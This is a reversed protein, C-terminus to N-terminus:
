ARLFPNQQKQQRWRLWWQKVLCVIKRNKQSRQDWRQWDPCCGSDIKGRV